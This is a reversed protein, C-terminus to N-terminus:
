FNKKSFLNGSSWAFIEYKKKRAIYMYWKKKKVSFMRCM